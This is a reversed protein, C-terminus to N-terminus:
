DEDAEGEVADCTMPAMHIPCIPAGKAFAKASMRALYPEGEQECAKCEVKLLRTKQPKGRSGEGPTLKAHPYPPFDQGEFWAKFADGATTATMKGTLGIAVACRKFPAKHAAELGVTAHVIEHALTAAVSCPDDDVPSIFIEFSESASARKDWCEGLVTRKRSGKGYSSFGCSAKVPGPVEYGVAAFHLRLADTVLTLWAERTTINNTNM